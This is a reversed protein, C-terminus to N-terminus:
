TEGQKPAVTQGGGGERGVWGMGDWGESMCPRPAHPLSLICFDLLSEAIEIVGFRAQLHVLVHLLGQPHHLLHAALQGLLLLQGVLDLRQLLLDVAVLRLGGLQRGLVLVQLAVQGRERLAQVAQLVLDAKM